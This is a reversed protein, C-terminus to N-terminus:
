LKNTLYKRLDYRDKSLQTVREENGREENSNIYYSLRAIELHIESKSMKTKSKVQREKQTITYM